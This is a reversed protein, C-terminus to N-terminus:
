RGGGEGVKVRGEYSPWTRPDGWERLVAYLPMAEWRCKHQLLEYARQDAKVEAMLKRDAETIASM